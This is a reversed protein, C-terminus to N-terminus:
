INIRQAKSFVTCSQTQGRDLFYGENTNNRKINAPDGEESSNPRREHMVVKDDKSAEPNTKPGHRRRPYYPRCKAGIYNLIRVNCSM